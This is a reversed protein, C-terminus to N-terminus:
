LLRFMKVGISACMAKLLTEIAAIAAPEHSLVDDIANQSTAAILRIASVNARAFAALAADGSIGNM